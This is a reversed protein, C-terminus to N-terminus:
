FFANLNTRQEAGAESETEIDVTSHKERVRLRQIDRHRYSRTVFSLGISISYTTLLELLLVDADKLYPKTQSYTM